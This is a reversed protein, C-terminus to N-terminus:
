APVEDADGDRNPLEVPIPREFSKLLDTSYERFYALNKLRTELHSSIDNGIALLLARVEQEGFSHRLLDRLVRALEVAQVDGLYVINAAGVEKPQASLDSM